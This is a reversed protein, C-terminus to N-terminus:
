DSVRKITRIYDATEKTSSFVYKFVITALGIINAVFTVSIAILVPSEPIYKRCVVLYGFLLTIAVISYIVAGLAIYTALTRFKRKQNQEEELVKRMEKIHTEFAQRDDFTNDSADNDLIQQRVDADSPFESQEQSSGADQNIQEVWEYYEQNENSM